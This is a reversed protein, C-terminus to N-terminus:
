GTRREGESFCDFLAQIGETVPTLSRTVVSAYTLRLVRAFVVTPLKMPGYDLTYRYCAYAAYYHRSPSSLDVASAGSSHNVKATPCCIPKETPSLARALRLEEFYLFSNEPIGGVKKLFAVDCLMASGCVYDIRPPAKAHKDALEDKLPVAYAMGFWSLYRYGAIVRRGRLTSTEVALGLISERQRGQADALAAIANVDLETDNNLLLVHSAGMQGAAEIGVNMGRSFGYNQELSLLRWNRRENVDTRVASLSNPTSGNDVVIGSLAIDSCKEAAADVSRICALTKEAGNWNLIVVVWHRTNAGMDEAALHTNVGCDAPSSEGDM